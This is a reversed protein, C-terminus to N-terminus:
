QKDSQAMQSEIHKCAAEVEMNKHIQAYWDQELSHIQQGVSLQKLKRERNLVEVENELEEAHDKIRNHLSELQANSAKWVKGGHQSLLELNQIRLNQHELQSSANNVSKTWADM